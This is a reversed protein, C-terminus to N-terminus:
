QGSENLWFVQDLLPGIADRNPILVSAREPTYYSIVYNADIVGSRINERPIEQALSALAIMEELTMDTRVSDSVTAYLTPAKQVLTPLMDLDVVKDRIAMVVAQQRRAREYDNDTYRTRAYKLATQGDLHQSGETIYFPDYGYNNDPYNVDYITKPVYLDIGGIEDVLTTFAQFEVVAYHDIRIGLNYQITEIALDSGGYVYASNIRELGHGPVEVYLDRPISLISGVNLGPIVSIVMMTDTRTRYGYESPRTDVGMVLVTVRDTGQWAPVTPALFEPNPTANPTATVGVHYDPEFPNLADSVRVARVILAVILGVVLTGVFIGAVGIVIGM